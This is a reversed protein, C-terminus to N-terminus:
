KLWVHVCFLVFLTFLVIIILAFALHSTIVGWIIARREHKTLEEKEGEEKKVPIQKPKRSLVSSPMCAISMDAIVRGDDEFRQKKKKDSM